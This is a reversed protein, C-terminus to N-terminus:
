DGALFTFVAAISRCGDRWLVTPKLMRWFHMLQLPDSRWREEEHKAWLRDFVEGSLSKQFEEIAVKMLNALLVNKFAESAQKIELNVKMRVDSM